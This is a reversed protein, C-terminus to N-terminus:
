RADGGKGSLEPHRRRVHDVSSALRAAELREAPGLLARLAHAQDVLAQVDQFREVLSRLAEAAQKKAAEAALASQRAVWRWVDGYAPTIAAGLAARQEPTVQKGLVLGHRGDPTKEAGQIVGASYANIGAEFSALRTASLTSKAADDELSGYLRRIDQHHAQSGRIGRELGLHETAAAWSDQLRALKEPGDFYKAANLRLGTVKGSPSPEDDLPVLTAHLHPTSEDLHLVLSVANDGFEAMLWTKAATALLEVRVSDYTGPPGGNRLWDPSAGLFLENAITANKRPKKKLLALRARADRAPSGSGLVTVPAPMDPNANATPVARAVHNSHSTLAGFNKIKAVRVIAFKKPAAATM